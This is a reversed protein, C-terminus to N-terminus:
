QRLRRRRLLNDGILLLVDDGLLGRFLTRLRGARAERVSILQFSFLLVGVCRARM